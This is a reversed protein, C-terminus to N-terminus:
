LGAEKEVIIHLWKDDMTTHISIIKFAANALASTLEAERWYKFYREDNMKQRSVEEGDGNKLTLGFRGGHSLGAHVNKLGVTFEEENFHLFVADAFIVDFAGEDITDTLVNLIDAKQGNQRLYDVFGSAADTRQVSYGNSEIYSADRGFASGIELVRADEQVGEFLTDLWKKVAGDVVQPTNNIYQQVGNNYTELTRKNDM